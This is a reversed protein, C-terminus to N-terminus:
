PRWGQGEFFEFITKALEPLDNEGRPRGSADYGTSESRAMLVPYDKAPEGSWKQAFVVCTKIAAGFPVFTENPLGVVAAVRCRQSLWQRVRRTKANTLVGEPLVIALWGGPRLFQVSRELGLIELPAVKGTAVLDFKGLHQASEQRVLSGFPPNTLVLDFNGPRYPEPYNEFTLLSDDLILNTQGDGQLALDIRAVRAMRPSKEIGFLHQRGYEQPDEHDGVVFSWAETLFHASGCFPDLVTEGARPRLAAVMFKVVESPTLFQGMGSRAAPDLVKQFARGKVDTSSRRISYPALVRAVAVLAHNSLRIPEAFFQGADAQVLRQYACRIASGYDDACAADHADFVSGAAGQDEDAIRLAIIKCLENLADEDHLGDGDRISDHARFFLGEANQAIATRGPVPPDVLGALMPLDDVRHFTDDAYRRVTIAMGGGESGLAVRIGVSDTPPSEFAFAADAVTRSVIAEMFPCSFRNRLIVRWRDHSDSTVSLRTAFRPTLQHKRHLLEAFAQAASEVGDPGGPHHALKQDDQENEHM